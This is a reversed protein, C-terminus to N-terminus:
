RPLAKESEVLLCIASATSHIVYAVIHTPVTTVTSGQGHGGLKNRATPVGSELCSRLASFHGTWFAPLLEKAFCVDLLDKCTAKANYTWGQKGCVVKLTSELASLCDVLADKAEGKRYHAHASRFEDEAGEYDKDHLLTLAPLVVDRHIIESDIKVIMGEAFRFGVGHEQFRTNLESLAKDADRAGKKIVSGERIPGDIMRFLLEVGDLVREPNPEELFFGALESHYNNLSPRGWLQFVGYEKRLATVLREVISLPMRQCHSPFQDLSLTEHFIHIIQVRLTNPLNDYTYVEPTEGRSRRQRKSFLDTVSM